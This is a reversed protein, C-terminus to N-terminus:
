LFHLSVEIQSIPINECYLVNNVYHFANNPESQHIHQSAASEAMNFIIIMPIIFFVSIAMIYVFVFLM